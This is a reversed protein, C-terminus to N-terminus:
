RGDRVVELGRELDYRCLTVLYHRGATTPASGRAGDTVTAATGSRPRRRVCSTTTGSPVAPRRRPYGRRVKATATAASATALAAVCATAFSAAATGADARHGRNDGAASDAALLPVGQRQGGMCLGSCSGCVAPAANAM